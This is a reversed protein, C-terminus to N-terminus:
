LNFRRSNAIHAFKQNKLVTIIVLCTYRQPLLIGCLYMNSWSCSCHCCVSKSVISFKPLAERVCIVKRIFADLGQFSSKPLTQYKSNYNESVQSFVHCLPLLYIPLTESCFTLHNTLYRGPRIFPCIRLGSEVIGEFFLKDLLYFRFCSM